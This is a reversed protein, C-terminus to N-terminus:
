SSRFERLPKRPGFRPAGGAAELLRVVRGRHPRFPELLELMQEDTGRPAGTLHWAVVHKLHFDGVSVADADGHSVATTEAVAWAGVGRYRRLYRAAEAPPRDALRELRDADRAIARLVDARRKEVGLDHYEHYPAAAMASPEPPLRLRGHPGPAATSFRFTLARLSRAAEKGTVKQSVVAVVLADLVLGTSGFRWGPHSRVLPGVVPHDSSFGETDDDLGALSELRDLAWDSGPGWAEARVARGPRDIRITVPGDPTRMPRWWGDGERRGWVLTLPRLTAGLDLDKAV